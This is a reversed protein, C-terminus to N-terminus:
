ALQAKGHKKFLLNLAESLLENEKKGTEAKLMLLQRAAEPTVQLSKKILTRRGEEPLPGTEEVAHPVAQPKVTFASLDASRKAM